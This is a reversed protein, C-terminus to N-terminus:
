IIKILDAESLRLRPGYLGEPKRLGASIVMNVEAQRPLKLSKKIRKEDFGGMPCSDYGHAAFSLMLTQAVLAAQVHAWIRHDAESVPSRVIAQQFGILMFGIRRMLNFLGLSDNKMIKTILKNYYQDAAKPLSQKGNDTMLNLLKKRNVDWLDRRAVVVVLEGATTAAPQGLCAQAIIKKQSESRIWLLQYPQLNSSSPALTAERLCSLMTDQPIPQKDYVRISRRSEVIRQFANRNVADPKPEDSTYITRNQMDNLPNIAM